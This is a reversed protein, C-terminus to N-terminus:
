VYLGMIEVNKEEKKMHSKFIKMGSQMDNINIQKRLASDKGYVRRGHAIKTYSFLLEIDRGFHKFLEHNKQFWYGLEKTDVCCTWDNDKFKKLFIDMLERHNYPQISFINVVVLNLGLAM